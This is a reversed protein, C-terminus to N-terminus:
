SGRILVARKADLTKVGILTDISVIDEKQDSDYDFVTRFGIGDAGFADAHAAGKPIALSRSVLAFASKHFAVSEETKGEGAPKTIGQSKYVDFNFLNGLAAKRLGDTSGSADARNTLDDDLWGANTEPGIVANRNEEPVNAKDLVMGADILARPDDWKRGETKGITQTVDALAQAILLADIKQKFAEIAPVILQEQFDAISLTWQESTVGFSVDLLTDLKVTFSKEEAKQIELGVERSFKKAEFVAPQRVTITDGVQGDFDSDYDRFVLGGMVVMKYLTAYALRSVVSPTIFKNNNAV